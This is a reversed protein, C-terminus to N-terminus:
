TGPPVPWDVVMAGAGRGSSGTAGAASPLAGSQVHVLGAVRLQGSRLLALGESLPGPEVRGDPQGRNRSDEPWPPVGRLDLCRFHIARLFKVSNLHTTDPPDLFLVEGHPRCVELCDELCEQGPEVAITARIGDLARQRVFGTLQRRDTYFFVPVGAAAAAEAQEQRRSLAWVGSGKQRLLQAVANGLLDLGLVAVSGVAHPRCYRSVHLARLLVAAVLADENTVGDPVKTVAGGAPRPQWPQGAPPARGEQFLVRDGPALGHTDPGPALVRGVSVDPRPECNAGPRFLTAETQVLVVHREMEVSREAPPPL